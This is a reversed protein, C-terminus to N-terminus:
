VARRLWRHNAKSKRNGSPCVSAVLVSQTKDQSEWAETIWLSDPEAPDKAVVYSLCGPMGSVGEILISILAERQGPTCKMKGILGYMTPNESISTKAFAATALTATAAGIVVTRRTLSMQAAERSLEPASCLKM